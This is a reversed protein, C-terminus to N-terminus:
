RLWNRWLLELLRGDRRLILADTAFLARSCPYSHIGAMYPAAQEEVFSRM